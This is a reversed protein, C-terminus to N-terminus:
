CTMTLNRMQVVGRLAYWVGEGKSERERVAGARHFAVDVADLHDLPLHVSAGRETKEALADKV